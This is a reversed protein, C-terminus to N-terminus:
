KLRALAEAKKEPIRELRKEFNELLFEHKKIDEPSM